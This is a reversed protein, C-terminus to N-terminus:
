FNKSCNNKIGLTNPKHFLNKPEILNSKLSMKFYINSTKKNSYNNIGNYNNNLSNINEKNKSMKSTLFKSNEFNRSSKKKLLNPTRLNPENNEKFSQPIAPPLLINNSKCLVNLVKLKSKTLTRKYNIKNNSLNRAHLINNNIIDKDSQTGYSNKSIISYRISQKKDTNFSKLKIIGKTSNGKIIKNNKSSPRTLIPLERISNSKKKRPISYFNYPSPYLDYDINGKKIHLKRKVLESKNLCDNENMRINSIEKLHRLFIMSIIMDKFNNIKEEKELNEIVTLPININKRTIWPHNLSKIVDYRFCPEYKCM